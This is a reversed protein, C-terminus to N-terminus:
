VLASLGRQPNIQRQQQQTGFSQQRLSKVFNDLEKAGANSSGNGLMSVADAPLVYEDRSLLAMDPNKGEVEFLIQDSQGDGKGIVQGEFYQDITGGESLPLISQIREILSMGEAPGEQERKPLQSDSRYTDVMRSRPTSKLREEIDTVTEGRLTYERPDPQRGLSSFIREARPTIKKGQGKDVLHYKLYTTLAADKDGRSIRALLEDTGPVGTKKKTQQLNALALDFQDDYGLTSIDKDRSELLKKFKTPLKSSKKNNKKSKNSLGQITKLRNIATNLSSDKFGEGGEESAFESDYDEVTGDNNLFQFYGAASSGALNTGIKLNNGRKTNTDKGRVDEQKFRGKNGSEIISLMEFFDKINKKGTADSRGGKSEIVSLVYDLTPSVRGGKALGILGGTSWTSDDGEEGPDDSSNGVSGAGEDGAGSVAAEDQAMSIAQAAVTDAAPAAVGVGGPGIGTVGGFPDVPGVGVGGFPDVATPEPEEQNFLAQKAFAGAMAAIPNTGLLAIQAAAGLVGALGYPNDVVPLPDKHSDPDGDMTINNQKLTPNLMQSVNSKPQGGYALQMVGTNPQEEDINGIAKGIGFVDSPSFPIRKDKALMFNTVNSRQGTQPLGVLGGKNKRTYFSGDTGEGPTFFDYALQGDEDIDDDDLAAGGRLALDLYGEETLPERPKHGSFTFQPLPEIKRKQIDVDDEEETALAGALGLGVSAAELPNAKMYDMIQSGFSPTTISADGGMTALPEYADAVGTYDSGGLDWGMAEPGSFSPLNGAGQLAAVPTDTHVFYGSSADPFGTGAAADTVAGSAGGAGAMAGTLGRTIGTGAASLAAGFLADETSDGKMKGMIFNSAGMIAMQAPISMGMTAFGLGINAVIPLIAGLNFAEPLGTDPNITLEGLSALGRIEPKSMHVLETDGFRGNMAMLNALGSYPADRNVMYAM